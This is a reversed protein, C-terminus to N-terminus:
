KHEIYEQEWADIRHTNSKSREEVAVMREVLGNHKDVKKELQELRFNTKSAAAVAGLGSGIITGVCGLVAVLITGDLM